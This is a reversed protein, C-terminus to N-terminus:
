KKFVKFVNFADKLNSTLKDVMSPGTKALSDLAPIVMLILMLLGWIIVLGPIVGTGGFLINHVSNFDKKRDEDTQYINYIISVAAWVLVILTIISGYTFLQENVPTSPLDLLPATDTGSLLSSVPNYTSTRSPVTLPPLITTASPVATSLKSSGMTGSSPSSLPSYGVPASPASPSLINKAKSLLDKGSSLAMSTLEPNEAALAMIQEVNKKGITKNLTKLIKTPDM